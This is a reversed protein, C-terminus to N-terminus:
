TFHTNCDGGYIDRVLMDIETADGMEALDLVDEYSECDTLLRSLGWYTGGGLSSGSVREFQTSSSVKLISVGSGINVVLYPFKFSSDDKNYPIVVKHTYELEFQILFSM